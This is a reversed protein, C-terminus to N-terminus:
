RNYWVIHTADKPIQERQSPKVCISEDAMKDKVPHGYGDYDIFMGDDCIKLFEEVTYVDDEGEPANGYNNTSNFNVPHTYKSKCKM